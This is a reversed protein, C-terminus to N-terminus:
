HQVSDGKGPLGAYGGPPPGTSRRITLTTALELRAPVVEGRARDMLAGIAARGLEAYPQRIATLPPCATAAAYTDDFSVVSLDRPVSRGLQRAAELAGLAQADSTTFIATPPRPQRLLGLCAEVAEDYDFDTAVILAPDQQVGAERLAARYGHVRASGALSHPRGCIVGIRTHGLDLLHNVADRGGQWNTVGLSTIAPMPEALPDLLVVPAQERRVREQDLDSMLSIVLILGLSAPESSVELWHGVPHRQTTGVVVDVQQAEAAEVLHRLMEHTFPSSLDRFVVYAHTRRADPRVYGRADLLDQVRRRTEAGVDRKGHVVKSVTGASVGAARAVESLLGYQGRRPTPM